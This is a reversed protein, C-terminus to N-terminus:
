EVDFAYTPSWPGVFGQQDVAAVHWFWQGAEVTPGYSTTEAEVVSAGIAFEADRALEVVYAPSNKVRKWRLGADPLEGQLPGRVLPASPLPQPETPSGSEDVRSAFLAEMVVEAESGTLAVRGELTEVRSSADQEIGVRFVTGRVGATGHPTRIEFRSGAGTATSVETEVDGAAVELEVVRDLNEDLHLKGLYLETNARLRLRSGDALDILAAGDAATTVWTAAILPQGATAADLQDRSSGLSVTGSMSGLQGVRSNDRRETFSILVETTDASAVVGSLRGSAVGGATLGDVYAALLQDASGDARADDPARVTVTVTRLATRSSLQEAIASVCSLDGVEVSLAAALSVTGGDLSLADCEAAAASGTLGWLVLATIVPRM